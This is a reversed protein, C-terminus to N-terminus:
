MIKSFEGEGQPTLGKEGTSKMQLTYVHCKFQWSNCKNNNNNNHIVRDSAKKSDKVTGKNSNTIRNLKERTLPFLM